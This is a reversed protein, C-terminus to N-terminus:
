CSHNNNANVYLKASNKRLIIHLPFFPGAYSGTKALRKEATQSLNISIIAIVIM